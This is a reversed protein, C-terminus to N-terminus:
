SHTFDNRIRLYLSFAGIALVLRSALLGNVYGDKSDMIVAIPMLVIMLLTINRVVSYYREERNKSIHFASGYAIYISAFIFSPALISLYHYAGVRTSGMVLVILEEILTFTVVIQILGLVLLALSFNRFKLTDRSLAGIGVKLASWQPILAANYVRLALMMDAYLNPKMISSLFFLPASVYIQPMFDILFLKFNKRIAALGHSFKVNKHEDYNRCFFFISIISFFLSNTIIINSVDLTGIFFVSVMFFCKQSFNLLALLYIKDKLYYFWSMNYFASICLLAIIVVEQLSSDALVIWSSAASFFLFVSCSLILRSTYYSNTLTTKDSARAAAFSFSFDVIQNIIQQLLLFLLIKSVVEDDGNRAIVPLSILPIALSIFEVASNSLFNKRLSM